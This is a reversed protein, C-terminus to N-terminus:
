KKEEAAGAGAESEADQVNPARVQIVKPEAWSGTVRYEYALMQGLPDRLLRQALLAGAGIIPNLLVVGAAVAISDGITPVVRVTLDQTEKALDARGTIAVSAAPGAMAMDDTVAVGSALKASGAISDFAFGDSFIDRFDLTVRRPLSQLSLVGLLRGVGPDVKMFQGKAAKLALHGSLSGYDIRHVPGSWRVAGELTATGKAVADPQGFRALYTGVDKVDVKVDLETRETGLRPPQWLGSASLSGDPAVLELQHLRWGAPENVARVELRGLEHGNYTYSDAIIRLAPLDSVTEDGPTAGPVAQPHILYKLRAALAGQGEPRWALEGALERASVDARWTRGGDFQAHVKVDHFQRRNVVLTGAEFDLANVSLEAGGAREGASTVLPLLRDLDLAALKGAVLVGPRDPLKLAVDGIAVGGREIVTHEGERWLEAKANLLSGVSVALAERYGGPGKAALPTREIRLPASDAAAKGFPPPLDVAVGVLSSEFTSSSPRQRSSSTTYKFPMPGRLRDALPLEISRALQAADAHGQVVATVAGDRTTLQASISGGLALATLNRASAGSETFEVRGTVQALPPQDSGMQLGNNAFQFSGAVKARELRDLPLEVHLNLRGRGEATWGDTLGDLFGRVPSQAILKLFEGTPGQAQGNVLVDTGDGYLDPLTVVADSIQTGLANARPSSIKLRPGDFVLDATVNTLKPWGDAYELTGGTVRGSIRFEGKTADRFPFDDLDGRLRFRTEGIDGSQIRDRLWVAVEPPLEPIYKYVHRGEGRTLRAAVDIGQVGKGGTRYTGSLSGALDSNSLTVEELRVLVDGQPFSWSVRAGLADFAFTPEFFIGPYDITVGNAALTVSGGRDTAEFAGSLRTFGPVRQYPRMGLDAFKGRAAYTAPQAVEGTWAFTVDSLRGEPAAAVLAQRAQEPFPLYEGVLALPALELRPAVIEGRAPRRGQAPEWRATFDAPPLTAGSQMALALQRAFGDYAVDPEGDLDILEFRTVRKAGFQGLVSELELLPLEPAFRTAVDALALDASLETLRQSAFGLWLKLAGRGGRVEFPYDLWTQWAALDVYEFGAYVRGNWEKLESMTRGILDGRLDIASAFGSPPAARIAFKHHRGENRLLFDVRELRIPVAGRQEDSWEVTGDRIVIEGQKLLWDAGSGDPEGSSDLELGAVFLRGQPDRRISLDPRDLVISRFRLEGAVLSRWAITVGVYPLALAEDGRRDFIRVDTLELRPHLGFWEAEVGGLEVREGVARSVAAAIEAKYAAVGPLVWFRLALMGGVALFYTAILAWGAWRLGRLWRRENPALQAEVAAAPLPSSDSAEHPPIM